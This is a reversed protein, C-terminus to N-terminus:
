PRDILPLIVTFVDPPKDPVPLSVIVGGDSPRRLEIATRGIPTYQADTGSARLTVFEQGIYQDDRNGGVLYLSGPSAVIVLTNRQWTATLYPGPIQGTVPAPWSLLLCLLMM